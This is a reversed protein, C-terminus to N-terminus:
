PIRTVLSHGCAKCCGENKDNADGCIACQVLTETDKPLVITLTSGYLHFVSDGKKYAELNQSMKANKESAKRRVVTGNEQKVHLFVTNKLYLNERTPQGHYANDVTTTIEVEQVTGSYTKDILKFPVGTLVFPVLMVATYVIVKVIDKDIPLIVDGWLALIVAFAALMLLCPIVRKLVAKISFLKLDKSIQLNKM